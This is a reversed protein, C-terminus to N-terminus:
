CINSYESAKAAEVTAGFNVFIKTCGPNVVRNVEQM